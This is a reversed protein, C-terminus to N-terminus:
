YGVAEFTVWHLQRRCRPCTRVKAEHTDMLCVMCGKGVNKPLPRGAFRRPDFLHPHLRLWWQYREEMAERPVDRRPVRQMWLRGQIM